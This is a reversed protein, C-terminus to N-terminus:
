SEKGRGLIERGMKKIDEHCIIRGTRGAGEKGVAVMTAALQDVELTPLVLRTLFWTWLTERAPFIGCPRVTISELAGESGDAIDFMTKEACGKARRTPGMIWLSRNYVLESADGSCYVFRFVDDQALTTAREQKMMAAFARTAAATYDVTVRLYEEPTWRSHQTHRGGICWFCARAGKITEMEGEKWVMWDTKMVVNVKRRADEGAMIKEPLPKRTLVHIRSISADALCRKLVTSGVYGTAGAIIVQMGENKPPAESSLLTPASTAM